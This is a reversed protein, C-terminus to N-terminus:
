GKSSSSTPTAPPAAPAATGGESATKEKAKAAENSKRTAVGKLASEKRSNLFAVFEPYRQAVSPDNQLANQIGLRMKDSVTLIAEGTLLRQDTQYTLWNKTNAVEKNVADGDSFLTVIDSQSAVYPGFDEPFTTSAQLEAAVLKLMKVQSRTLRVTTKREDKTLVHAGPPVVPAHGLASIPQPNPNITVSNIIAQSSGGSPQQAKKNKTAM